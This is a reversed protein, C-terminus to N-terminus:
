LDPTEAHSVAPATSSLGDICNQIRQVAELQRRLEARAEQVTEYSPGLRSEGSTPEKPTPTTDDQSPASDENGDEFVEETSSGTDAQSDGSAGGEESVTNASLVEDM